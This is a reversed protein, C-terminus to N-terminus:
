STASELLDIYAGEILDGKSIGLREMLSTAIAEGEEIRQGTSLVVELEVFAGLGEVIDLHLRTNGVWYLWRRKRVIGRIGLASEL